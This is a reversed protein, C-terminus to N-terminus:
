FFEWFLIGGFLGKSEKVLAQLSAFCSFVRLKMFAAWSLVNAFFRPPKCLILCCLLVVLVLYDDFLLLCYFLSANFAWM